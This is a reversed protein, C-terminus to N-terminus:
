DLLGSLPVVVLFGEDHNVVPVLDNVFPVEVRAGSANEIALRDQADGLVVELVLGLKTGASDRVEMGVLDEPWYEDAGLVRKASAPITLQQGRLAEAQDRTEIGIFAVVHGGKAPRSTSITLSENGPESAFTDGVGFRHPDDSYFTAVVDGRIGHARSIHGVVLRDLTEPEHGDTSSSLTRNM